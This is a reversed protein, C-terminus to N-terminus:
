LRFNFSQIIYCVLTKPFSSIYIVNLLLHIKINELIETKYYKVIKLSKNTEFAVPSRFLAVVTLSHVLKEDLHYLWLNLFMMFVKAVESSALM